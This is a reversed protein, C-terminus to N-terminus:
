FVIVQLWENKLKDPIVAYSPGDNLYVLHDERLLHYGDIPSLPNWVPKLKFFLFNWYLFLTTTKRWFLFITMTQFFIKSPGARNFRYHWPYFHFLLYIEWKNVSWQLLFPWPLKKLNFKTWLDFCISLLFLGWKCFFNGM